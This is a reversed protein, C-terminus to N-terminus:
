NSECPNNNDGNETKNESKPFCNNQLLITEIEKIQDITANQSLDEKM